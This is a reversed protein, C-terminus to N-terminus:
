GGTPAPMALREAIAESTLKLLPLPSGAGRLAHEMLVAALSLLEPGAFENAISAAIAAVRLQQDPPETQSMTGSDKYHDCARSERARLRNCAAPDTRSPLGTRNGTPEPTFTIYVAGSPLALRCFPRWVM